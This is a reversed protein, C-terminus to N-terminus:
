QILPLFIEVRTGSNSGDEHKLDITKIYAKKHDKRILNLQDETIETGRVEESKKRKESAKKIADPNRGDGNDQVVCLVYNDHLTFDIKIEGAYPLLQIGHWVANEIFPRIIMSPIMARSVSIQEDVIIRYTFKNKFRMAELELYLTIASIEKEFVVFSVKSNELILRLLKAFKSIYGISTLPEGRTIFYNINSLSNFLFHPNMQARLAM